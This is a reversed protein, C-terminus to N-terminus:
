CPTVETIEMKRVVMDVAFEVTLVPLIGRCSMYEERWEYVTMVAALADLHNPEVGATRMLRLLSCAADIISTELDTMMQIPEGMEYSQPWTIECYEVKRALERFPEDPRLVANIPHNRHAAPKHENV